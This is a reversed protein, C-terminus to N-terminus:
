RARMRWFRNGDQSLPLELTQVANTLQISTAMTWDRDLVRTEELDYTRGAEGFIEIRLRDGSRVVSLRPGAGGDPLDDSLDPIGDRDRDNLDDISMQWTVYDLEPTALDGDELDMLAYYNTRVAADRLLVDVAFRVAQGSDGVLVGPSVALEDFRNTAVRTLLMPGALSRIPENTKSLSILGLANTSSRNYELTGAFRLLEFTARFEWLEGFQESRFKIRCSGTLAGTERRWTATLSGRDVATTYLGATTEAIGQDLEVMDPFGDGDEDIDMPADMALSGLIRESFMPDNVVFRSFHTPAAPDFTPALEGNTSAPDTGTTLELRAAGGAVDSMAPQFRFSLCVMWTQAVGPQAAEVGMSLALCAAFCAIAKM